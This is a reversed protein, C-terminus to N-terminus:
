KWTGNTNWGRRRSSSRAPRRTPKSTKRSAPKLQAIPEQEVSYFVHLFFHSFSCFFSFSFCLVPFFIIIDILFSVGFVLPPRIYEALVLYSVLLPIWGHYPLSAKIKRRLSGLMSIAVGKTLLHQTKKSEGPHYSATRTHVEFLRLFFIFIIIFVCFLVESFLVRFYYAIQKACLSAHSIIPMRHRSWTHIHCVCFLLFLCSLKLLAAFSYPPSWRSDYSSRLFSRECTAVAKVLAGHTGM